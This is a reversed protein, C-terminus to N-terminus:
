VALAVRSRPQNQGGAWPRTLQQSLPSLTQTHHSLYLKPEPRSVITRKAAVHKGDIEDIQIAGTEVAQGPNIAIPVLDRTVVARRFQRFRFRDVPRDRLLILNGNPRKEVPM